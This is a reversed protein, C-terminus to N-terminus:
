SFRYDGKGFHISLNITGERLEWEYIHFKRLKRKVLPEESMIRIAEDKSTARIITLGAGVKTGTEVFPGSAFLINKDELNLMFNLHEDLYPLMKEEPELPVSLIAYLRLRLMRQLKSTMKSNIKKM